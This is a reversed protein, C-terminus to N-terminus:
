IFVPYGPYTETTYRGTEQVPLSDCLGVRHEVNNFRDTVWTGWDQRFKRFAFFFRWTVNMRIVGFPQCFHLIRTFHLIFGRHAKCIKPLKLRCGKRPQKIEYTLRSRESGSRRSQRTLQWWLHWHPHCTAAEPWRNQIHNPCNNQLAFEPTHATRQPISIAANQLSVGLITRRGCAPAYHMQVKNWGM